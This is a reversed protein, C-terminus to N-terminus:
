PPWRIGALAAGITAPEVAYAAGDTQAALEAWAGASDGYVVVLLPRGMAALCQEVEDPAAPAQDATVLLLLDPPASGLGLMVQCLADGAAIQGDAFLNGLRLQTETATEGIQGGGAVENVAPGFTHLYLRDDPALRDILNNTAEIACRLPLGNMRNTADFLIAIAMPPAGDHLPESAVLPEGCPNAAAPVTTATPPAPSPTATTPALLAALTPAAPITPTATATPRLALGALVLLIATILGAPLWWEALNLKRRAPQREVPSELPPPLPLAALDAPPPPEAKAEVKNPRTRTITPLDRLYQAAAAGYFALEKATPDLNRYKHAGLLYLTLGDYYESWDDPDFLL